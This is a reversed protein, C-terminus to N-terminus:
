LMKYVWFGFFTLNSFMIVLFFLTRMGESLNIVGKVSSPINKLDKAPIDSIFFIGCYISV